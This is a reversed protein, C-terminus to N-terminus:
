PQSTWVALFVVPSLAVTEYFSAAVLKWPDRRRGFVPCELARALCVIYFFFGVIMMAWMPVIMPLTKLFQEM